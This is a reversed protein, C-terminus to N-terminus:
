FHLGDGGEKGKDTPLVTNMLNRVGQYPWPLLMFGAQSLIMFSYSPWALAPTKSKVASGLALEGLSPRHRREGREERRERREGRGGADGERGTERKESGQGEKGRLNLM